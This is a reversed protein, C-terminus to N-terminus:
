LKRLEEIVSGLVHPVDFGNAALKGALSELAAIEDSAFAQLEIDAHWRGHHDTLRSCLRPADDPHVYQRTAKFRAEVLKDPRHYRVTVEDSIIRGHVTAAPLSMGDAQGVLKDDALWPRTPHYAHSVWSDFAGARTRSCDRATSANV